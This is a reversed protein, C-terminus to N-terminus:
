KVYFTVSPTTTFAEATQWVRAKAVHTGRTVSWLFQHVQPPTTGIVQEDILWEISTTAGPADSLRLAFAEHDDPIRPDMALQLGETPQNLRFPTTTTPTPVPQTGQIFWELRTACASTARQGTTRCIAVKVLEPSLYLGQTEAQRNLEAFVARLLLAAGSSGSVSSMAQQDLNGLWVGVTYHYNFGIAWADRYDTSTGTKVATQVPFRLLSSNGFERNRAEPDSLIDAILSSVEKSFIRRWPSPHLNRLVKLPRFQGHNALATYAQVLEFLTVGGNGLALGEGYHSATATLSQMGLQHLTTLFNETGVWQITRVAPTNLSNGLAERLRLPGYYHRSYNRYNHLGTGVPTLLPADDILTAATWGKALAQAYLFPKLTSGPQRPTIIADIQSGSKSNGNVWALVEQTHHDVVLVAGNNVGKTSLDQLRKDLLEQVTHQIRSDLTTLLRESKPVPQSALYYAFHKANVPLQAPQLSLPTTLVTQYDAQSLIGQELLRQAFHQLSPPTQRLDLRTPARVIVALAMMEKINLTDLDRDFYYRAAQKVGRRQNAYPVQNLYFELIAAKSFRKELQLAEWSELWRSWITRPRPHWMKVVQETLTSAGRVVRFAQLNQLLAHGRAAWDLGAHEFFRKDEALIFIQQLIEPIEHLPLYDHLNWDNQYTVTLPRGQRDRLQMKRVPTNALDLTSPLPRLDTVTQWWLVAILLSTLFLKFM